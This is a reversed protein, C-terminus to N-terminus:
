IVQCFSGNSGYIMQCQDNATFFQGPLTNNTLYDTPESSVINTLCVFNQGVSTLGSALINNKISAISCSSFKLNNVLNTPFSGLSATMIYNDSAACGSTYIDGGNSQSLGDHYAGM